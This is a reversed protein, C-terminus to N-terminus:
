NNKTFTLKLTYPNNSMKFYFVGYNRLISKITHQGTGDGEGTKFKSNQTIILESYENYEITEMEWSSNNSHKKKNTLLNNFALNIAYPNVDIKINKARETNILVIDPNIKSFINEARKWEDLLYSNSVKIYNAFTSNFVLIENKYNNISNQVNNLENVCEFDIEETIFKEFNAITSQLKDIPIPIDTNAYRKLDNIIDKIFKFNDFQNYKTKFEEIETKLSFINKQIDSTINRNISYKLESIRTTIDVFLNTLLKDDHENEDIAVNFYYERLKYYKNIFFDYDRADNVILEKFVKFAFRLKKWIEINKIRIEFLFNEINHEFSKSAFKNNTKRIGLKVLIILYELYLTSNKNKSNDFEFIRECIEILNPPKFFNNSNLYFMSKIFFERKWSENMYEEKSLFEVKVFEFFSNIKEKPFIRKITEYLRPELNLVTLLTLKAINDKILFEFSREPIEESFLKYSDFRGLFDRVSFIEKKSINRFLPIQECDINPFFSSNLQVKRENLYKQFLDSLEINQKSLESELEKIERYEISSPNEIYNHIPINLHTGFFVNIPVVNGKVQVSKLRSYLDKKFDELRGFLSFVDISKISLYSVSDIMQMITDGTLSGDDIILASMEHRTLLIDLFKPPFSFRWGRSTMIRPIPFILPFKKKGDVEYSFLNICEEVININSLFPYFIIDIGYSNFLEPEISNIIKELQQDVKKLSNKHKVNTLDKSIVEIGKKLYNLENKKNKNKINNLETIMQNIFEFKKIRDDELLQATQLYYNFYVSNNKLNGLILYKEDILNLFDSKEFLVNENNRNKTIKIPVNSVHNIIEVEKNDPQVEDSTLSFKTIYRIPVNLMNDEIRLDVIVFSSITKADNLELEKSINQILSGTSVVDSLIIVQDNKQIERFKEEKHFNFYNSLSVLEVKKLVFRNIIEKVEIGILQSSLTVTLIKNLKSISNNCYKFIKFVLYSAIMRRFPLIYLKENLSIYKEMFKGSPSLYVKGTESLTINNYNTKDGDTLHSFQIGVNELELNITEEIKKEIVDIIEGLLPLDIKLQYQKGVEKVNIINSTYNTINDLLIDKSLDGLWIDTFSSSYKEDIGLWQVDLNVNLCPIPYASFGKSKLNKDSNLLITSNLGITTNNYIILKGKGSLPVHNIFYIFKNFFDVTKTEIGSFDILYITNQKAKKFHRLFKGFLLATLKSRFLENSFDIQNVILENETITYENLFVINEYNWTQDIKSKNISVKNFKSKKPDNAPFVLRIQTGPFYSTSKDLNGYNIKTKGNKFGLSYAGNNSIIEIYGNYKKAIDKIIFLGRPIYDHVEFKREIEYRSTFLLFAYEIIRTELDCKSHKNKFYEEGFFLKLDQESEAEYKERLTNVIGVGFDHFNIEIFDINRYKDNETFFSEDLFSLEQIRQESVFDSVGSYKRNLGISFYCNKSVKSSSHLCFNSYLEKILSYNLFETDYYNIETNSLLKNLGETINLFYEDYINEFDNDFTTQDFNIAPIQSFKSFSSSERTDMQITGAILSNDQKLYSRLNWDNMLRDLCRKRNKYEYSDTHIDKATQLKIYVKAGKKQLLVIWSFLCSVGSISIWELKELNFNIVSSELSHLWKDSLIESINSGVFKIKLDIDM